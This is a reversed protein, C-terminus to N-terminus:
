RNGLSITMATPNAINDSVPCREEVTKLWQELTAADADTDPILEVDVNKYGARETTEAGSFKAPDLQGSINMKVGRLEFQMERAVFHAVVNLCGALAALLYEVPTAGENTGGLEQPEDIVLEFGRVKAVAKTPNVSEAKIRTTMLAM